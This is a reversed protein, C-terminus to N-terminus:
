NSENLISHFTKTMNMEFTELTYKEKFKLRANEGLSKRLKPDNLIVDIKAALQKVDQKPVVFGTKGDDIIEPIAGENSSIVPLEFQMAELIVGPFAEFQTPFVFIDSKSLIEFKEDGYKPGLLKVEDSLNYSDIRSQVDKFTLDVPNGVIWGTFKNNREKLLKFAELLELIGKSKALNSIFLIKLVPDSTINGPFRGSVDEIGNNVIYPKGGYVLALDRTLFESLCIVYTNRFLYRFMWKKFGSTSAQAHIGQTRLHFVLKSSFLKFILSFIFDRYLAFGYLSINFYVLHPRTSIMKSVVDYLRKIFKLLKLLSLKGIDQSSSAYNFPIVELSFERNILGSEVLSKNRLAAGHVPPPLPVFFLIVRNTERASM